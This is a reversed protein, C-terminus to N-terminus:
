QLQLCLTQSVLRGETDQRFGELPELLSGLDRQTGRPGDPARGEGRGKM